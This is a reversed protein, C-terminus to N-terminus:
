LCKNCIGRINLEIAQTNLNKPILTKIKDIQIDFPIIQSCKTCIFHQHYDNEKNIEYSSVSKKVNVERLIGENLLLSINRYITARDIDPLKKCIENATLLDGNKLVDLLKKRKITLRM